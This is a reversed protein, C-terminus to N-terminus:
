DKNGQCDQLLATIEFKEMTYQNSKNKKLEYGDAAEPNIMRGVYRFTQDDEQIRSIKLLTNELYKSRILVTQLNHYIMESSIVEGKFELQNNFSIAVMEGQHYDMIRELININIPIVEDCKAFLQPKVSKNKQALTAFSFLTFLLAFSIQILNKM